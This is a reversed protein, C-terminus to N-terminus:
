TDGDVATEAARIDLEGATITYLKCSNVVAPTEGVADTISSACCYDNETSSAITDECATKCGASDTVDASEDTETWSSDADVCTVTDEAACAAFLLALVASKM